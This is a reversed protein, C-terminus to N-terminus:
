ITDEHHQMWQGVEHFIHVSEDPISGDAHPGINLLYNGGQSACEILHRVM